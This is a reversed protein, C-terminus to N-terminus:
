KKTLNFKWENFVRPTGIDFLNFPFKVLFSDSTSVAPHSRLQKAVMQLMRDSNLFFLLLLLLLAQVSVSFSPVTELTATLM